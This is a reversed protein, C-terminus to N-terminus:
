HVGKRRKRRAHPSSALSERPKVALTGNKDPWLKHAIHRVYAPPIFALNAIMMILGFTTMGMCLAIGLHLPVSLMLVIPRTLRPWVLAVYSVEWILTVHTMLNVLGPWAALWTMDITQYEYNAFAGWLATGEWWSDGLLKGLGAFMYVLCLHLQMLRVALNASVSPPSTGTLKRKRLWQDVSFADGCPGLMLYLALFGNIQDLGFLSGAARHAYSVTLLFALVAAWRSFFGVMLAVFVVLTALHSAWLLFPSDIWYLHSWAFPSDHYRYVFDKSLWGHAGFFGELDITWVLHTYFLMAGTLMRILALTAPDSPTFWFAEWGRVLDRLWSRLSLNPTNM